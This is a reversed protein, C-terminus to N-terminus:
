DRRMRRARLATLGLALLLATGPEPVFRLLGTTYLETTDWANPGGPFVFASFAGGIAGTWDLIDFSDGQVPQFGGHLILALTGDLALDGDVAIADHTVGALTGGLEIELTGVNTFDGAIDLQGPSFGPALTGENRLAVGLDPGGRLSAQADIILTGDGTFDAGGELTADGRFRLDGFLRTESGTAFVLTQTSLTPEGGFGFVTFRGNQVLNPISLTTLFASGDHSYVGDGTFTGRYLNSGGMHLTAGAAVDVSGAEFVTLDSDIHAEGGTVSMTGEVTLAQGSVRPAAGDNHLVISGAPRLFGGAPLTWGADTNVVLEGGNLVIAGRFDNEPDGTGPSDITLTRGSEVTLTNLDAGLSNGWNFTETEITTDQTVTIDNRQVLTGLGAWSGGAITTPSMLFLTSNGWVFVDAFGTTTLPAEIFANGGAVILDGSVSLPAGRVVPDSVGSHIMALSGPVTGFLSTPLSWGSDTQVDLVGSDIQIDGRYAGTSSGLSDSAIRLTANPGITLSNSGSSNSNGWDFTDVSVNVSGQVAIDGDQVVTGNGFISVGAFTTLLGSSLTLVNSAQEVDVTGELRMDSAFIQGNRGVDLDRTTFTIGGGVSNLYAPTSADGSLIVEVGSPITVDRLATLDHGAGVRIRGDSLADIAIDLGVDGDMANLAGPSYIDVADLRLSGAGDLRLDGGVASIEGTVHLSGNSELIGRGSIEPTSSLSGGLVEGSGVILHGGALEINGGTRVELSGASIESGFSSSLEGEIVLEDDIALDGTADLASNGDIWVSDATRSGTVTTTGGHAIIVADNDDPVRGGIWNLATGWGGSNGTYKRALDVSEYNSDRAAVLVDMASPVTRVGPGILPSMLALPPAVHGHEDCYGEGSGECDGEIVEVGAIGLLHDPDIPYRGSLIDGGVGLEHGLEHLIVSLLDTKSAADGSTGTGFYAIELTAPPDVNDFYLSSPDEGALYPGAGSDFDLLDGFDFESSGNPTEDFFWGSTTDTDFYLNNNGFPDFKWLGLQNGDGLDSWSVDVVHEGASPILREWREAAAQAIEMLRTGNSDYSPNEGLDDYVLVINIADSPAAPVLGLALAAVLSRIRFPGM